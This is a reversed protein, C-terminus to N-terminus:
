LLLGVGAGPRLLLCSWTVTSLGQRRAVGGGLKVAPPASASVTEGLGVGLQGLLSCPGPPFALLKASHAKAVPGEM